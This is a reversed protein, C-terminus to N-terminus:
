PLPGHSPTPPAMFLIVSVATFFSEINDSVYVKKKQLKGTGGGDCDAGTTVDDICQIDGGDGVEHSSISHDWTSAM